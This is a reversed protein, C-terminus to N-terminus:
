PTDKLKSYPIKHEICAEVMKSPLRNEAEERAHNSTWAPNESKLKVALTSLLLGEVSDKWLKDHGAVKAVGWEADFFDFERYATRSSSVATLLIAGDNATLKSPKRLQYRFAKVSPQTLDLRYTIEYRINPVFPLPIRQEWTTERRDGQSNNVKVSEYGPFLEAYHDIDSLTAVVSEIGAEIWLTQELGIYLPAGPTELCQAKLEAGFAPSKQPLRGLFRSEVRRMEVSYPTEVGGLSPDSAAASDPVAACAVALALM